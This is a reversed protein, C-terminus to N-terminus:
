HLALRFVQSITLISPLYDTLVLQKLCCSNFEGIAYYATVNVFAGAQQRGIGRLIGAAVGCLSDFLQFAALLPMVRYILMIVEEDQTFWGGWRSRFILFLGSNLTGSVVSLLLAMDSAINAQKPQLAGLLNGVRVAAAVSLAYPLQYSISSSVLLVSQAALSTTGLLSTTLGVIEWSWRSIDVM